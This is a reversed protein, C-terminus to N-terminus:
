SANGLLTRMSPALAQRCLTEAARLAKCYAFSFIHCIGLLNELHLRRLSNPFGSEIRRPRPFAAGRRFFVPHVNAKDGADDM